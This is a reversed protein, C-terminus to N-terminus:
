PGRPAALLLEFELRRKGRHLTRRNLEVVALALAAMQDPNRPNPHFQYLCRNATTRMTVPLTVLQEIFTRWEMSKGCFYEALAFELLAMVTLKLCTMLSDRGTDREYIQTPMTQVQAQQEQRKTLQQGTERVAKDALALGHKRVAAPASALATALEGRTAKARDHKAQAYAVSRGVKELKSVLAVNLIYGGGFGHSRNLGGGNRAKRFLQEQRPWRALYHDAVPGAAVDDEHLNTVFVTPHPHRSDARRMVVGRIRFGEPPAGKGHLEIEVESVEDRERYTQWAQQQLIRAGALVQGKLVTIFTMQTQTHMAWIAGATGAESDVITLRDVSAEPGVAADLKALMPLLRNKLSVAGMHTEMLLPLGAGSNVAVRSLCPMVRGVRSVKGSKAFARTWYPDATGDIYVVTRPWSPEQASRWRATVQHWADAHTQWMAEDVDLLALETLAKDLTAPMYALGGLLSLWSGQTGELGCFGRRESLLPSVGMALLKRGLTEPRRGLVSLTALQRQDAKTADSAWRADSQGAPTSGRRRANYEATFTGHEGREAADDTFGDTVVQAAAHARGQTLACKALDLMCGLEAEAAVILALGTGGSFYVVEDAAGSGDEDDEGEVDKQVTGASCAQSPSSSSFQEPKVPQYRVDAAAWVRKLYSDSVEGAKGFRALLHGRTASGSMSRDSRRLDCAAERIEAAIGPRPAPAREDLLREWTPGVRSKCRRMWHVFTPWPVDPAVAALSGRWSGGHRRQHRAVADFVKARAAAEGVVRSWRAPGLRSCLTRGQETKPIRDAM